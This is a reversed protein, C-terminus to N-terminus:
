RAENLFGGCVIPTTIKAGNLTIKLYTSQAIREGMARVATPSEAPEHTFIVGLRRIIRQNDSLPLVYATSGILFTERLAIQRKQFCSAETFQETQSNIFFQIQIERKEADFAVRTQPTTDPPQVLKRAAQRAASRLQKLGFDLMTVPDTKLRDFVDDAALPAPTSILVWLIVFLLIRM